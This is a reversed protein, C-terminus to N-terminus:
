ILDSPSIHINSIRFFVLFLFSKEGLKTIKWSGGFLFAWLRAKLTHENSTVINYSMGLPAKYWSCEVNDLTHKLLNFSLLGGLERNEFIKM